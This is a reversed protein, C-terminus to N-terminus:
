KIQLDIHNRELTNGEDLALQELAINYNAQAQIEASRATTLSSQLQLVIFSTSKGNELKKQEAELAAEAYIRAERTADVRQLDSQVIKVDNDIAILVTQEEQKLQLLGQQVGAKASKYANRATINGLPVTVVV